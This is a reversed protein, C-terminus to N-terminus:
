SYGQYDKNQIYKTTVGLLHDAAIGCIGGDTLGFTGHIKAWGKELLAVWLKKDFKAFCPQNYKVPFYEDVYVPTEKGNIFFSMLYIGAENVEQTYFRAKVREPNEAMASLTALFYCTGLEGQRVDSPDIKNGFVTVGPYIDTARQWNAHLKNM